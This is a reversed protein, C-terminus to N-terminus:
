GKESRQHRTPNGTSSMADFVSLGTASWASNTRKARRAAKETMAYTIGGPKACCIKMM